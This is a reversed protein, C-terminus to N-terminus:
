KSESSDVNMSSTTPSSFLKNIYAKIEDNTFTYPIIVLNINNNKCYIKKREDREQYKKYVEIDRAHFFPNYKYHQEGNYEIAYKKDQFELYFDFRQLSNNLFKEKEFTLNLKQLQQEIVKCGKSQKKCCKPCGTKNYLIHAPTVSWVFGCSHKFLSKDNVTKFPSILIYENGYEKM